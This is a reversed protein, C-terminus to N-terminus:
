VCLPILSGAHLPRVETLEDGPLPVERRQPCHVQSSLHALGM